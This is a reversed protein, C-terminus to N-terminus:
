ERHNQPLEIRMLSTAVTLQQGGGSVNECLERELSPRHKTQPPHCSSSSIIQSWKDSHVDFRSGTIRAQEQTRITHCSENVLKMSEWLLPLGRAAQDATDPKTRKQCLIEVRWPGHHAHWCYVLRNENDM